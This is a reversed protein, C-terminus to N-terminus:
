DSFGVGVGLRVGSRSYPGYYWPDYFSPYPWYFPDYPVYYYAGEDDKDRSFVTTQSYSEGQAKLVWRLAYSGIDRPRISAPLPFYLSFKQDANAPVSAEVKQTLAPSFSQRNEEAETVLDLTTRKFDLEVPRNSNNSILVGVDIINEQGINKVDQPLESVARVGRTWVRVNVAGWDSEQSRVTYIAAREGRPSVSKGDQPRFGKRGAACGTLLVIGLVVASLRCWVPGM